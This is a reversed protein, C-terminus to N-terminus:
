QPVDLGKLYERNRMHLVCNECVHNPDAKKDCNHCTMGPVYFKVPEKWEELQDPGFHAVTRGGEEIVGYMLGAPTGECIETILVKIKGFKATDGFKFKKM